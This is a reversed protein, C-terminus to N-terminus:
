AKQIYSIIGVYQPVIVLDGMLIFSVISRMLKNSTSDRQKKLINGTDM